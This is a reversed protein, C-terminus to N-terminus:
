EGVVVKRGGVIYVGKQLRRGDVRVGSLTYVEGATTTSPEITAIGTASGDCFLAYGDANANELPARMYAQHAKVKAYKGKSGALFYFGVEEPNKDANKYCLVYYKYGEETYRGGEESGILDNDGEYPAAYTATFTYEGEAGHLVVPCGAPVVGELPTLTITGDGRTVTYAEVGEPITLSVQEYYLTAYTSASITATIMNVVPRVCQGDLRGGYTYEGYDDWGLYYAGGDSEPNTTRSWYAGGDLLMDDIRWGTEPLFITNGNPGTVEYGEVGHLTTATWTCLNKLEDFQEKSPTRWQSGWNVYAADDEPDLEVKDDTFGDKGRSSDSCYKTFYTQEDSVEGWKYNEWSFLYGDSIDNGHGVTDGWAFFLGVGQPATAGVNCTAWLTGSPLGLDVALDTMDSLPELEVKTFIVMTAEVDYIVQTDYHRIVRGDEITYYVDVMSHSDIHSAVSKGTSIPVDKDETRQAALADVSAKFGEDLDYLNENTESTATKDPYYQAGVYRASSWNYNMADALEPNSCIAFGNSSAEYDFEHAELLTAYDSDAMGRLATLLPEISYYPVTIDASYLYKIQSVGEVVVEGVYVTSTKVLQETTTITGVSSQAWSTLCAFFALLLSLTVRRLFFNMNTM